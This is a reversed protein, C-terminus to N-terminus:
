LAKPLLITFVTGKASSNEATITGKHLHTYSVYIVDVGLTYTGGIKEFTCKM